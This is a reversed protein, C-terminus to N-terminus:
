RQVPDKYGAPPLSTSLEGFGPRFSLTVAAWRPRAAIDRHQCGLGSALRLCAATCRQRATLQQCELPRSASLLRRPGGPNGGGGNSWWGRGGIRQPPRTSEGCSAESFRLRRPVTPLKNPRGSARLSKPWSLTKGRTTKTRGSLPMRPKSRMRRPTSPNPPYRNGLQRRRRRRSVQTLAHAVGMSDNTSNVQTPLIFSTGERCDLVTKPFRCTLPQLSSTLSSPRTLQQRTETPTLWWVTARRQPFVLRCSHQGRRECNSKQGQDPRYLVASPLLAGDPFELTSVLPPWISSGPRFRSATSSM